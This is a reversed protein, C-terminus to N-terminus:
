DKKVGKGIIEPITESYIPEIIGKDTIIGTILEPPIIDFAPNLIKVNTPTVQVGNIFRLEDGSREEIVIEEDYNLSMDFTSSPAAVYFPVGNYKCLVALSYTGITNVVFGKSTVCEAGVIVGQVKDNHILSGAMNDAVVTVDFGDKMLEWATLRAGQLLPRTEDVFIKLDKGDEKAARFVGLATGYGTTALAGANCHTLWAEGDNIIEQGFSGIAKCMELDEEYIKDAVELAKAAAKQLDGSNLASVANRVRNVANYLNAVTPRTNCLLDCVDALLAELTPKSELNEKSTLGLYVGYAAAVGIAPAGRVIMGVIAKAVDKESFCTFIEERIPLLTQNILELCNKSKNFVVTKIM